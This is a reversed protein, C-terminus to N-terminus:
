LNRWLTRDNPLCFGDYHWSHYKAWVGKIDVLVRFANKLTQYVNLINHYTHLLLLYSINLVEEFAEDYPVIMEFAPDTTTGPVHIISLGSRKLAEQREVM